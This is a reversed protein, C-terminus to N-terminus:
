KGARAKAAGAPTKAKAAGAGAPKGTKKSAGAGAAKAKAGAGAPARGGVIFTGGCKPCSIQLRGRVKPVRLRSNCKACKYFRHTRFYRVRMAAGKAARRMGKMARRIGTAARRTAKTARRVVPSAKDALKSYAMNERQRAMYNRSVLRYLSYAIIGFTAINLAASRIFLSAVILVIAAVSLARNLRDPGYAGYRGQMFRAIRGRFGM